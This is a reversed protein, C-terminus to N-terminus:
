GKVTKGNFARQFNSGWRKCFFARRKRSIYFQELPKKENKMQGRVTEAMTACNFSEEEEIRWKEENQQWIVGIFDNRKMKLFRFGLPLWVSKRWKSRFKAKGGGFQAMIECRWWRRLKQSEYEYMCKM